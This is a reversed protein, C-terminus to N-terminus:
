TLAKFRDFKYYIEKDKFNFGHYFYFDKNKHELLFDYSFPISIFDNDVFIIKNSNPKYDSFDENELRILSHNKMLDYKIPPKLKYAILDYIGYNPPM